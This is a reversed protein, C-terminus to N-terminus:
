NQSNLTMHWKHVEGRYKKLCKLQTTTQELKSSLEKHTTELQSIQTKIASTSEDISTIEAETTQLDAKIAEIRSQVTAGLELEALKTELLEIRKKKSLKPAETVAEEDGSLSKMEKLVNGDRDFYGLDVGLEQFAEPTEETSPGNGRDMSKVDSACKDRMRM